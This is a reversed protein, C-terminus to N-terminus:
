SASEGVRRCLPRCCVCCCVYCCVYWYGVAFGMAPDVYRSSYGAFGSALPIWTAMEGLAGLVLYVVFGVLSYTILIPAPGARALGSGTGIILGTGM